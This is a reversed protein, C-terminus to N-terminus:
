ADLLEDWFHDYPLVRVENVGTWADFVPRLPAATCVVTLALGSPHVHRRVAANAEELAIAEVRREYTDVWDAPRGVLEAELLTGLRKAATEVQFPFANVLYSQSFALEDATIGGEAFVEILERGLALAAPTDEMAPFYRASFSGAQRDGSVRSSAGYSWGRKERIEHMLRATFTGGLATNAVGLALADPHGAAICPHGWIVQTQNRDPKDVLWVSIGGAIRPPPVVVPEATGQALRGVVQEAFARAAGETVDGAAAVLARSQNFYESHFSKLDGIDLGELSKPTGKASRGYPHAGWAHVHHVYGCLADDSDSVQLLEAITRRKLKDVEEPDFAPEALAEALLAVFAPLHRSLVEGEFAILERYVTVDLSAGLQDLEEMFTARDRHRTGHLLAHATLYACGAQGPADSLAGVRFLVQFFAYPAAHDSILRVNM